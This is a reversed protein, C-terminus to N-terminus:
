GLNRKMLIAPFPISDGLMITVDGIRRFGHRAYFAEGPTSSFCQLERVGADQADVLCRELIAGGVGMRMFDPHTAFHRVHGNAPRDSGSAPAFTSWGGCGALRGDVTAAFYRGSALLRQDIRLMEPLADTLLEADYWGPYIASYCATILTELAERDEPLAQRITIEAM